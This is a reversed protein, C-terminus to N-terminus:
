TLSIILGIFFFHDFLIDLFFRLVLSASSKGYDATGNQSTGGSSSTPMFHKRRLSSGASNKISDIVNKPEEYQHSEPDDYDQIKENGSSPPARPLNRHSTPTYLKLASGDMGTDLSAMRLDDRHDNSNASAPSQKNLETSGQRRLSRSSLSASSAATASASSNPSHPQQQQHQQLQHHRGGIKSKRSLSDM